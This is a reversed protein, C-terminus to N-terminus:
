LLSFAGVGATKRPGSTRRTVGRQRRSQRRSDRTLFQNGSLRAYDTIKACFISVDGSEIDGAAAAAPWRRDDSHPYPPRLRPAPLPPFKPHSSVPTAHVPPRRANGRLKTTPRRCCSETAPPWKTPGSEAVGGVARAAQTANETARGARKHEGRGQVSVSWGTDVLLIGLTPFGKVGFASAIRDPASRPTRITGGAASGGM